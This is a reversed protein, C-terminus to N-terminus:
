KLPNNYMCVQRSYTPLQYTFYEKRSLTFVAQMCSEQAIM